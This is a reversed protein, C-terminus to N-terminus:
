GTIYTERDDLGGEVARKKWSDETFLSQFEQKKKSSAYTERGAVKSM